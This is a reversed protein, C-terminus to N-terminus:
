NINNEERQIFSIISWNHAEFFTRRDNFRPVLAYMREGEFSGTMALEMELCFLNALPTPPGGEVKGFTTGCSSPLSATLDFASALADVQVGLRKRISSLAAVVRADM